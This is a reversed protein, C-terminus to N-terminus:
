NYLLMKRLNKVVVSSDFFESEEQKTFSEFDKYIKRVLISKFKGITGTSQFMRAFFNFWSMDISNIDCSDIHNTHYYQFSLFIINKMIEYGIYKFYHFGFSIEYKWLEVIDQDYYWDDFITNSNSLINDKTSKNHNWLNRDNYYTKVSNDFDFEYIKEPYFELTNVPYSGMPTKKYMDLLEEDSVNLSNRIYPNIKFSEVKPIKSSKSESGEFKRKDNSSLILTSM